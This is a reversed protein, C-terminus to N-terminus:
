RFASVGLFPARCPLTGEIGALYPCCLHLSDGSTRVGRAARIRTRNIAKQQPLLGWALPALPHYNELAHKM